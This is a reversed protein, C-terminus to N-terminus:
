FLPVHNASFISAAIIEPFRQAGFRLNFIDSITHQCIILNEQNRLHSPTARKPSHQQTNFHSLKASKSRSKHECLYDYLNLAHGNNQRTNDRTRACRNSHSFVQKSETRTRAHQTGAQVQPTRTM